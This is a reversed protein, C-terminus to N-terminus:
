KNRRQPELMDMGMKFDEDQADAIHNIAPGKVTHNSPNLTAIGQSNNITNKPPM